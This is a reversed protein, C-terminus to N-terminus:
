RTLGQKRKGTNGLAINNNNIIMMMMMMMMMMTMMMMMMMMMMINVFFKLERYLKKFVNNPM